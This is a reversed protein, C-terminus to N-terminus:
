IAAEKSTDKTGEAEKAPAAPSGAGGDTELLTGLVSALLKMDVPKAVHANMGARMANKVDEDFANATMAIIPIKVADPHASQRIAEAAQYGNMVPMQIDMFVADYHGSESAELKELAIQGNEALDCSAKYMSLLDGIIEQNLENDEAVLFHRGEFIEVGTERNRKGAAPSAEEEAEPDAECIEFKLDVNFTSGAGPKSEIFIRGGLTDIIKKTIAMGLGTGQIKRTMTDEARSFPTFITEVFEPTMGMGNDKVEFLYWCSGNNPMKEQAIRLRIEGGEQTYKVANSLLNVLVQHLHVKDGRVRFDRVAGTDVTFHQKRAEAQPRILIDMEEAIERLSFVTEHIVLKGSEIKSMDLVNNILELLLHSSTQIKGTYLRVKEPDDADKELLTSLGVIGNIPTRIDHSMNALFTSKAQSGAEAAIVAEKARQRELYVKRIGLLAAFFVLIMLIAAALISILQLSKLTQDFVQAPVFGLIRLDAIGVPFYIMYTKERGSSLKQVTTRGDKLDRRIKEMGTEPLTGGTKDMIVAFISYSAKESDSLVVSGDPLTIFTETKGEYVSSGILAKVQTHNYGVAIATYEQGKWSGAAPVAFLTIVGHVSDSANLVIKEGKEFLNRYAKGYSFYGTTGDATIYNGSRDMFFFDTFRWIKQLEFLYETDAQPNGEELLPRVTDLMNWQKKTHSIFGDNINGYLERLSVTSAEFIRNEAAKGYGSLFALLFVAMLATTLIFKKNKKWHM